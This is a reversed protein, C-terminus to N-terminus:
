KTPRLIGLRRSLNSQFKFNPDYKLKVRFWKGFDSYMKRFDMAQLLCDKALYTKGSYKIVIKDLEWLLRHLGAGYNPFDLTFTIGPEPFSLTAKKTAKSGFDKIVSLFSGMGRRAITHLTEEIGEVAKQRPFVFQYQIFGRKGYLHNWGGVIDLPYFFPDYHQHMKGTTIRGKLYYLQNFCWANFKNLVFTPFDFPINLLPAPSHPRFNGDKSHNGRMFIGRGLNKGTALCDVWGVTYEFDEASRDMLEIFHAINKAPENDVDIYGSQVPKLKLFVDLIIGTLGMGGVTAWFLTANKKRSCYEVTGDALLLNFGLVDKSFSGHQLHNKGHVDCAICGGLTVYKTGPTVPVFWGRPLFISIIESLTVGAQAHIIGGAEDFDLIHNLRENLVVYNKENLSADGYSKGLGRSIFFFKKDGIKDILEVQSEPRLLKVEAKPYGGWGSLFTEKYNM